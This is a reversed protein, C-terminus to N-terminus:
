ILAQPEPEKLKLIPRQYQRGNIRKRGQADTGDFQTNPYGLHQALSQYFKNPNSYMSQQGTSKIFDRFEQYLQKATIIEKNTNCEEDTEYNSENFFMLLQNNEDQFKKTTQKVIDPTPFKFDNALLNRYRRIIMSMFACRYEYDNEIKNCYGVKKQFIGNIPDEEEYGAEELDCFKSHVPIIRARESWFAEEQSDMEPPYNSFMFLSFQPVVESEAKFLGRGSIVDNGSIKKLYDVDQNRDPESVILWRNQIKSMLDANANSASCQSKFTNDRANGCFHGLSIKMLRELVTKGGGPEGTLWYIEKRANGSQITTALVNMFYDKLGDYKIFIKNLDEEIEQVRPHTDLFEKFPYDILDERRLFDTKKIDRFEGTNLDIVGNQFPLINFHKKPDKLKEIMERSKKQANLVKLKDALVRTSAPISEYQPKKQTGKIVRYQNLEPNQEVVDHIYGEVSDLTKTFDWFPERYIYYGSQTTEDRIISIYQENLIKAMPLPRYSNELLQELEAEEQQKDLEAQQERDQKIQEVQQYWQNIQDNSANALETPLSELTYPVKKNRKVAQGHEIVIHYGLNQRTRLVSFLGKCTNKVQEDFLEMGIELIRPDKIQQIEQEAM